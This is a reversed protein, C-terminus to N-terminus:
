SGSFEHVLRYQWDYGGIEGRVAQDAELKRVGGHEVLAKLAEEAKNPYKGGLKLLDPEPSTHGPRARLHEVIRRAHPNPEVLDYFKQSWEWREPSRREEAVYKDIEEKTSGYVGKMSGRFYDVWSEPQPMVVIHDDVLQAALKDGSKLGLRRVMEIPLTIQHKSSLTITAM